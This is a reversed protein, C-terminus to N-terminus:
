VSEARARMSSTGRGASPTRLGQRAHSADSGGASFVRVKEMFLVINPILFTCVNARYFNRLLQILYNIIYVSKYQIKPSKCEIPDEM